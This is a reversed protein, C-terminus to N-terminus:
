VFTSLFFTLQERVKETVCTEGGTRVWGERGESIKENQFEAMRGMVKLGLVHMELKKEGKNVVYKFSIVM